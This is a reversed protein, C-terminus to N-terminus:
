LKNIFLSYKQIHKPLTVQFEQKPLDNLQILLSININPPDYFIVIISSLPLPTLTCIWFFILIIHMQYNRATHINSHSLLTPSQLCNVKCCTHHQANATSPMPLFNFFSPIEKGPKCTSDQIKKGEAMCTCTWLVWDMSLNAAKTRVCNGGWWLRELSTM